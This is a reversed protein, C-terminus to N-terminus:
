SLMNQPDLDLSLPTLNLLGDDGLHYTNELRVAWEGEPDYLGPELTFVDGVELRGEDQGAHERFSPLEHVEYGVGHGLGHVYGRTTGPDSVPTPYGADEFHRCVAAQLDWGRGGAKASGEALALASAAARHGAALEPPPPGVCFTRTCDAFLHGRPFIDVVLSEGARLTREATGISHPVAGEYGPAVIGGEPQELGHEALAMAVRRRLDAVKLPRGDRWLEGGAGRPQSTALLRAVERFAAMTGVAARRIEALAAADKPKRLLTIVEEGAVPTWGEEGLRRLVGSARGLPLEGAVAIPGPAVGCLRLGQSLVDAWLRDPSPSERAWRELDLQEPTLLALGSRAAEDREMPSFYGLRPEDGVPVVVFSAGLRVSGAFPALFPDRSSRAVVVLARCELGRLLTDLRDGM